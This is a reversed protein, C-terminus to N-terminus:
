AVSYNVERGDDKRSCLDSNYEFRITIFREFIKRLCNIKNNLKSLFNQRHQTLKRLFNIIVTNVFFLFASIYEKNFRGSNLHVTHIIFKLFMTPICIHYKFKILKEYYNQNYNFRLANRNMM